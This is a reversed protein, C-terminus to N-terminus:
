LAEWKQTTPQFCDIFSLFVSGTYFPSLTLGEKTDPTVFGTVQSTFRVQFIENSYGSLAADELSTIPFLRSWSHFYAPLCFDQGASVSPM